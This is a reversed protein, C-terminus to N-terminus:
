QMEHVPKQPQNAPHKKGSTIKEKQSIINCIYGTIEPTSKDLYEKRLELTVNAKGEEVLLKVMDLSKTQTAAYELPTREEYSTHTEDWVIRRHITCDSINTKAGLSLLLKTTEIDNNLVSEFIATRQEIMPAINAVYNIDFRNKHLIKLAEKDGSQAAAFVFPIGKAHPRLRYLVQKLELDEQSIKNQQQSPTNRKVSDISITM